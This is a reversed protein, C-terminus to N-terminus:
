MCGQESILPVLHRAQTHASLLKEKAVKHEKFVFLKLMRVRSLCLLLDHVYQLLTPGKPFKMDDLDAKLIQSFYSPSKTFGLCQWGPSNNEEGLSSLTNAAKVLRCALSHVVCTLQM